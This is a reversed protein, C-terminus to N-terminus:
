TRSQYTVIDRARCIICIRPGLITVPSTRSQYTVIDRNMIRIRLVIRTMRIGDVTFPRSIQGSHKLYLRLLLPMIVFPISDLGKLLYTKKQTNKLLHTHTCAPSIICTYMAITKILPNNIYNNNYIYIYVCMAPIRLALHGQPSPMNMCAHMHMHVYM